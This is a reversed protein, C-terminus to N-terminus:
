RNNEKKITLIVEGGNSKIKEIAKKSAYSVKIKYKNLVRGSGLLKNFRLQGLDVSFFNNEKSAQEKSILKHINEELYEINVTNISKASKSKFGHKGFYKRKWISPKKTDARKGSGAAGKGGRNGAGRRKKMSGCGHTKSGRYKVVKKRKNVTM